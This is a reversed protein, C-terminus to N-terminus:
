RRKAFWMTGAPDSAKVWPWRRENYTAGDAKLVAGEQRNSVLSSFAERCSEDADPRTMDISTREALMAYGPFLRITRELIHRRESYPFSLLSVGDLLLVDFFVLALHRTGGDSANSVLSQQSERDLTNHKM